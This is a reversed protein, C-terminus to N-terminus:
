DVMAQYVLQMALRRYHARNPVSQSMFVAVLDAQPDIWFYTGGFGGWMYQGAHGPVAAVGDQLRVMFGLGFGYGGTGLLLPGPGIRHVIGPTLHDSAMLQVTSPSLIRVGDLSGGNLMMQGFRLYDMATGVAGGGGSANGPPQSVDFLPPIGADANPAFPEALRSLDGEPVSFGTDVMGLPQFLRAALFDELRQGSVAEVVRGLVDTSLSYEWTSGPETVLPMGGVVSNFTEPTVGRTEFPTGNAFMGAETLAGRVDPNTNIEAYPIGSTHRLLDQVTAVRAAPTLETSEGDAGLTSIMPDAFDPLHASVPDTLALRGEEVLMMAAVSALPKTMSYIRFIADVPMATDQDPRLAGFAEAYVLRGHRAIMMVAGPLRGDAIDAELVEGIRALRDPDFGADEPAVPDLAHAATSLGMGVLLVIFSLCWALRGQPM